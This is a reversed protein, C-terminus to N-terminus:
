LFAGLGEVDRHDRPLLRAPIGLGPSDFVDGGEVLLRAVDDSIVGFTWGSGDRQLVWRPPKDDQWKQRVIEAQLDLFRKALNMVARLDQYWKKRDNESINPM